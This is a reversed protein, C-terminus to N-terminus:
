DVLQVIRKYLEAFEFPKTMYENMGAHLCQWQEDKMATATMAIIPTTLRLQHRIYYTTAYGDMKPMQLDMIILDYVKDQQLYKVAEEGNNAITVAGGAKRLVFEILKQNIENDEAVLVNKGALLNNYEQTGSHAPAEPAQKNTLGYTLYFQFVSGKGVTSTVSIDGGQLQLLQKCITLGLGTGGFRRSTDQSAQSFSDFIYGISEAPIGVGTDTIKFCVVMQEATQEQISVDINISGKNTFKIANSILNNLVQNLRHPDGTVCDPINPDVSMQLQLGKSHLPHAFLSRTSNLVERISLDIKEIHLKGAKIKSFDLIDNIVVLLTNISRKIMGAMDQQKESLPTELLLDTMGKIGNMPTRIEHSMNALFQEQMKRAQRAEAIAAILKRQTTKHQTIDNNVMFLIIVVFLFAGVRGLILVLAVHQNVLINADKRAALLLKEENLMYYLLQKIEAVPKKAAVYERLTPLAHQLDKNVQTTKELSDLLASTVGGTEYLSTVAMQLTEITEYTQNIYSNSKEINQKGSYIFGSAVGLTIVSFLLLWTIKRHIVISRKM